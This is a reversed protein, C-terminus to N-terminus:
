MQSFPLLDSLVSQMTCRVMRSLHDKHFSSNIPGFIYFIVTTAFRKQKTSRANKVCRILFEKANGKLHWRTYMQVKCFHLLRCLYQRVIHSCTYLLSELFIIHDLHSKYIYYVFTHFIYQELGTSLSSVIFLLLLM